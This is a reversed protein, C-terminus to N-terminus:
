EIPSFVKGYKRFLIISDIVDAGYILHLIIHKVCQGKTLISKKRLLVILSISYASTAAMALFTHVISLAFVARFVLMQSYFAFSVIIIGAILSSICFPILGLKFAMIIKLPNGKASVPYLHLRVASVVNIETLTLSAGFLMVIFFLTIMTNPMIEPLVMSQLQAINSLYLVLLLLVLKKKKM